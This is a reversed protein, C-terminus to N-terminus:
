KKNRQIEYEKKLFNIENESLFELYRKATKYNCNFYDSVFSIFEDEKKKKPYKIFINPLQRLTKYQYYIPINKVTFLFAFDLMRIDNALINHLIYEPIKEIEEKSPNYKKNFASYIVKFLDFKDEKNKEINKKNNKKNKETKTKENEIWDNLM